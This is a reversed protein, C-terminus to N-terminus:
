GIGSVEDPVDDTLTESLTGSFQLVDEWELQEGPFLRSAEDLAGLRIQDRAGAVRRSINGPDIGWATALRKQPVGYLYHLRMLVVSEDDARALGAIVCRRIREAVEADDTVSLSGGTAFEATELIEDTVNRSSRRLASRIRNRACIWLWAELPAAGGYKTLRPPDGAACESLFEAIAGRAAEGADPFAAYAKAELSSQFREYYEDIASPAGAVVHRAFALDEPFDPAAPTQPNM